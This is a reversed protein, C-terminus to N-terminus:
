FSFEYEEMKKEYYNDKINIFDSEKLTKKNLHKYYYSNLNECLIEITPFTDKDWEITPVIPDYEERLKLGNKYHYFTKYLLHYHISQVEIEINLIKSKLQNTYNILESINNFSKAYETQALHENMANGDGIFHLTYENEKEKEYTIKKDFESRTSKYFKLVDEKKGRVHIEYFFIHKLELM